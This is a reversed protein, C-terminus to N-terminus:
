HIVTVSYIVQKSQKLRTCPLTRAPSRGADPPTDRGPRIRYVPKLQEGDRIVAETAAGHVGLLRTTDVCYENSEATGSRFCLLIYQLGISDITM